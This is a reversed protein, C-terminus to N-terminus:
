CIAHYINSVTFYNKYIGDLIKYEDGINLTYDGLLAKQNEILIETIGSFNKAYIEDNSWVRVSLVDCKIETVKHYRKIGGNKKIQYAQGACALMKITDDATGKLGNNGIWLISDHMFGPSKYIHFALAGVILARDNDSYLSM